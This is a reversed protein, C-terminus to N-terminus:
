LLEELAEASRGVHYVGGEDMSDLLARAAAKLAANETRLTSEEARSFEADERIGVELKGAIHKWENREAELEACRAEAEELTM